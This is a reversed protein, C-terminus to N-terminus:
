IDSTLDGVALSPLCEDLAQWNGEASLAPGRASNLTSRAASLVVSSCYCQNILSDNFQNSNFQKVWSGPGVGMTRGVLVFLAIPM